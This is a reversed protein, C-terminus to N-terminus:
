RYPAIGPHSSTSALPPPRLQKEPPLLRNIFGGAFLAAVFLVMCAVAYDERTPDSVKEYIKKLARKGWGGNDRAVNKMKSGGFETGAYTSEHGPISM